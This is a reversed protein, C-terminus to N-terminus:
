ETRTVDYCVIDPLRLEAEDSASSAGGMARDADTLAEVVVIREDSLWHVADAGPDGELRLDLRGMEAGQVSSVDYRHFADGAGLGSGPLIWLEGVDSLRLSLIAPEAEEVSFTARQYREHRYMQRLTAEAAAKEEDSRVRAEHPRSWDQTRAGDATFTVVHYANREPAVHVAGNPALAWRAVPLDHEGEDIHLEEYSLTYGGELIPRAARGDEGIRGLTYSTTRQGTDFRSQISFAVLRGAAADANLVRLPRGDRTPSRDGVHAGSADYRVIKPPSLVVVGVDADDFLFLDAPRRLEGPGDGEGGIRRLFSGDPALVTVEGLQSDLLYVNGSPDAVARSVVGFLFRDDEGSIRWAENTELTGASAVGSLLFAWIPSCRM